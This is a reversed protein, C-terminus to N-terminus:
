PAGAIVDFDPWDPAGAARRLQALVLAVGESLAVDLEAARAILTTLAERAQTADLAEAEQVGAEREFRVRDKELRKPELPDTWGGALVGREHEAGPELWLKLLRDAPEQARRVRIALGEAPPHTLRRGEHLRTDGIGPIAPHVGAQALRELAAAARPATDADALEEVAELVAAAAPTARRELGRVVLRRLRADPGVRRHPGVLLVALMEAGEATPRAELAPLAQDLLVELRDRADLLDDIV